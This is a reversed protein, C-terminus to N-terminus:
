KKGVKAPYEAVVKEIWSEADVTPATKIKTM